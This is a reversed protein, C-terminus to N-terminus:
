SQIKDIFVNVAFFDFRCKLLCLQFAKFPYHILLLTTMINLVFLLLITTIAFLLHTPSWFAVTPDVAVQFKLTIEGKQDDTRIIGTNLLLYAVYANKQLLYSSSLLLYMLLTM